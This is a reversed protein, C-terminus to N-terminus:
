SQDNAERRVQATERVLRDFETSEQRLKQFDSKPWALVEVPDIATLQANRLRHDVLGMEGALSGPGLSAVEHGASMVCFRGELVLYAKDAPESEHIPAWGAPIRVRRGSRTLQTLTDSSLSELGPLAALDLDPDAM